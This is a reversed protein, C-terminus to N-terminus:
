PEEEIEVEVILGRPWDGAGGSATVVVRLIDDAVLASSALTGSKVTRLTTDAAAWDVTASLMTAFAAGGTSRHLDIAAQRTSTAVQDTLTTKINRLTGAARMIHIDKTQSTVDTGAVQEVKFFHRHKLKSSDIPDGSAVAANRVTAAPLIVTEASLTAYVHVPENFTAM